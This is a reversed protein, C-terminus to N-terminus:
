GERMTIAAIKRCSKLCCSTYPSLPNISLSGNCPNKSGYCRNSNELQREQAKQSSWPKVTFNNFTLTPIQYRSSPESQYKAEYTALRLKSAFLPINQINSLKPVGSSSLSSGQSNRSAKPRWTQGRLKKNEKATKETFTGLSINKEINYIGRDWTSGRKVALKMM